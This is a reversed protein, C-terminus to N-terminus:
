AVTGSALAAVVSAAFAAFALVVRVWHWVAWRELEAPLASVDISADTFSENAAKFYLPFTVLVAVSGAVAVALGTRVSGGASWAAALAALPVALAVIELPGFFRLLLAGNAEYWDRFAQPELSRWYPVLVTAEALLAGASTGLVLVAVLIM